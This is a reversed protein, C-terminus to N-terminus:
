SAPSLSRSLLLGPLNRPGPRRHRVGPYASRRRARPPGYQLCELADAMTPGAEPNSRIQDYISNLSAADVRPSHWETDFTYEPM